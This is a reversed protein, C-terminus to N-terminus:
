MDKGLRETAAKGSINDPPQEIIKRTVEAPKSVTSAHDQQQMLQSHNLQNDFETDIAM